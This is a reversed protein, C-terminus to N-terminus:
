AKSSLLKNNWNFNSPFLWFSCMSTSIGWWCILMEGKYSNASSLGSHYCCNYLFSKSCCLNPCFLPWCTCVPVNCFFSIRNLYNHTTEPILPTINFFSRFCLGPFPVLLAPLFFALDFPYPYIYAIFKVLLLLPKRKHGKMRIYLHSIYICVYM